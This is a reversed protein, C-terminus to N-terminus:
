PLNRSRTLSVHSLSTQTVSFSIRVDKIIRERTSIITGNDLRQISLDVAPRNAPNRHEIEQIAKDFHTQATSM